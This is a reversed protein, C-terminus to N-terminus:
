MGYPHLVRNKLAKTYYNNGLDSYDTIDKLIIASERFHYPMKVM